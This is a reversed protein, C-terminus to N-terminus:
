DGSPGEKFSNQLEPGMHKCHWQMFSVPGIYKIENDSYWTGNYSEPYFKYHLYDQFTIKRRNDVGESSSQDSTQRDERVLAEAVSQIHHRLILTFLHINSKLGFM